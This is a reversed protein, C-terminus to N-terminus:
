WAGNPGLLGFCEKEKIELDVGNVAVLDKFRKILNITQIAAINHM